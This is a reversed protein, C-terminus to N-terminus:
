RRLERVFVCRALFDRFRCFYGAERALKFIQWRAAAPTPAQVQMDPWGSVGVRYLRVNLTLQATKRKM